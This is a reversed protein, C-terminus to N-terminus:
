KNKMAAAMTKGIDAPSAVVHVGCESLIKMKAAATDEAGGVIAGAHGMRRGAPATQGAIFGVVPKRNNEKIWRAADAEMNGGSRFLTTYPFLTSRPPRRTM